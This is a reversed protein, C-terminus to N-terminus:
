RGGGAAVVAVLVLAMLGGLVALLATLAPGPQGYKARVYVALLAYLALALLFYLALIPTM